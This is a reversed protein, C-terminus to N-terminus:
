SYAPSSEDVPEQASERKALARGALIALATLGIGLIAPVVALNSGAAVAFLVPILLAAWALPNQVVWGAVFGLLMFLIIAIM